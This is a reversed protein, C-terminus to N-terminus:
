AEDFDGNLRSDVVGTINEKFHHEWVWDVIDNCCRLDLKYEPKRRGSCVVELMLVGFAYVDTEVLARRTYFSELAMYGPTGVIERTSHHTKESLHVTRALGFDGLQANFDSDLMVNSPKIDRHLVRKDCRNHLYDLGTSVGCIVSLRMEWSLISDGGFTSFIFKYLSGNQMLEYVLIIEGKEYCWRILKVLNKHNLNWITTIEVMFDQKSHRSNRLIRKAAVDKGNLTSKYVMCFGEKGLKNSSHFNRTASVLEKLRFKHPANYSSKIELEINLDEEVGQEKKHKKRWYYVGAFAGGVM